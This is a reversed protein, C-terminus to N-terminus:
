QHFKINKALFYVLNAFCGFLIALSLLPFYTMVHLSSNVFHIPNTVIEWSNVRDVKGLVIAFGVLFNLYIIIRTAYKKWSSHRLLGEFPLVAVMFTIFGCAELVIYEVIVLIKEMGALQPWQQLLHTLDSIVYITNPLYFFWLILFITKIWSPKIVVALEVFLVPLLALWLNYLMWPLNFHLIEM